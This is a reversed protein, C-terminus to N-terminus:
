EQYESEAVNGAAPFRRLPHYGSSDCALFSQLENKGIQLGHVLTKSSALLLKPRPYFDGIMWHKAGNGNRSPALKVQQVRQMVHLLNSLSGYSLVGRSVTVELCQEGGTRSLYPQDKGIHERQASGGSRLVLKSRLLSFRLARLCSLQSYSPILPSAM